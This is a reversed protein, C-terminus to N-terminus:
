NELDIGAIKWKKSESSKDFLHGYVWLARDINRTDKYKDYGGFMKAISEKYSSIYYSEEGVLSKGYENDSKNPLLESTITKGIETGQTIAKVARDAYQDYIPFEGKSMFYLLTILYVTGVGCPAERKMKDLVKAACENTWESYEKSTKVIYEVFPLIDQRCQKRNSRFTVNLAKLDDTSLKKLKAADKWDSHYVFSKNDESERHKIKGVKWALINVVDQSDKIGNALIGEIRKEVFRSSQFVGKIRAPYDNYYFKNYYTIFKDGEMCEGDLDYFVAM